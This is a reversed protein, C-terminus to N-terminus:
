APKTLMVEIAFVFAGFFILLFVAAFVGYFIAAGTHGARRAEGSRGTGLVVFSYAVTIGLGAVISVWIVEVIQGLEVVGLM